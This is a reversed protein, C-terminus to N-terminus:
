QIFREPLPKLIKSRLSRPNLFDELDEADLDMGTDAAIGLHMIAELVDSLERDLVEAIETATDWLGIQYVTAQRLCRLIHERQEATLPTKM